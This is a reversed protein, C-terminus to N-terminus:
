IDLNAYFSDWDLCVDEEKISKLSDIADQVIQMTGKNEMSKIWEEARVAALQAEIETPVCRNKNKYNKMNNM